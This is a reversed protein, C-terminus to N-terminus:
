RLVYSTQERRLVSLRWVVVISIPQPSVNLNCCSTWFVSTRLTASPRYSLYPSLFRWALHLNIPSTTHFTFKLAILRASIRRHKWVSHFYPTKPKPFSYMTSQGTCNGREKRRAYRYSSPVKAFIYSGLTYYIFRVVLFLWRLATPFYSM